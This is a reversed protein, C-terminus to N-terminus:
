STNLIRNDNQYWKTVVGHIQAEREFTIKSKVTETANIEVQLKISLYVSTHDIFVCGGSLMDSSYWKGKKHSRRVPYRYIYHNAYLMQVPMLNYKNLDQEKM